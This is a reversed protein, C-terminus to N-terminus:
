DISKLTEPDIGLERFTDYLMYDFAGTKMVYLTITIMVVATILGLIGVIMGATAYYRDPENKRKSSIGMIVAIVGLPIALYTCCVSMIMALIGLMLSALAFNSKQPQRNNRNMNDMNNNNYYNDM